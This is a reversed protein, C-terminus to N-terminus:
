DGTMSKVPIREFAAGFTVAFITQIVLFSFDCGQRM